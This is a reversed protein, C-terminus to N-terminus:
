CGGHPLMDCVLWAAGLSAAIAIVALAGIVILVYKM